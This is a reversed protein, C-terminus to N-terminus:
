DRRLRVRGSLRNLGAIDIEEAWSGVEKLDLVRDRPKKQLSENLVRYLDGDLDKRVSERSPLSARQHEYLIDWFSEGELFYKGTLMEYVICGFAFIDARHDIREGDIQEIPMYRITGLIQGHSTLETSCISRSKALGFDMLKLTGDERIM